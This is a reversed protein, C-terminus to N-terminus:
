INPINREILIGSGTKTLIRNAAVKNKKESEDCSVATFSNHNYSRSM